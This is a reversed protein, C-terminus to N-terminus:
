IRPLKQVKMGIGPRLDIFHTGPVVVGRVHNFRCNMNILVGSINIQGTSTFWGSPVKSRSEECSSRPRGDAAGSLEGARVGCVVLKCHM